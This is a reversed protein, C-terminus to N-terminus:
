EACKSGEEEGESTSTNMNWKFRREEKRNRKNNNNNKSTYIMYSSLWSFFFIWKLHNDFHFPMDIVM